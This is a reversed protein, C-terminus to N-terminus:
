RPSLPVILAKTMRSSRPNNRSSPIRSRMDTRVTNSAVPMWMPAPPLPRSIGQGRDRVPSNTLTGPAGAARPAGGALDLDTVGLPVDDVGGALCEHQGTQGPGSDTGLRQLSLAGGLQVADPLPRDRASVGLLRALVDLEVAHETDLLSQSRPLLATLAQVAGSGPRVRRVDLVRLRRWRERDIPLVPGKSVTHDRGTHRRRAAAGPTMTSVDCACRRRVIFFFRLIGVIGAPRKSALSTLTLATSVPGRLLSLGHNTRYLGAGGERTRRCRERGAM